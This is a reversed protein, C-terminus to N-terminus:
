NRRFNVPVALKPYKKALKMRDAAQVIIGKPMYVRDHEEAIALVTFEKASPGFFGIFRYAIHNFDIKVRGLGAQGKLPHYSAAWDNVTPQQALYEFRVFVKARLNLWRNGEHNRYWETLVDEDDAKLFVKIRWM